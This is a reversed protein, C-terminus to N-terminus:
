YLCNLLGDRTKVSGDRLYRTDGSSLTDQSGSDSDGYVPHYDYRLIDKGNLNGIRNHFRSCLRNFGNDELRDRRSARRIWSGITSPAEAPVGLNGYSHTNRQTNRYNPKNRPGAVRLLHRHCYRFFFSKGVLYSQM